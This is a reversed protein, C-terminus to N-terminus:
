EVIGLIRNEIKDLRPLHSLSYITAAWRNLTAIKEPGWHIGLVCVADLKRNVINSSM